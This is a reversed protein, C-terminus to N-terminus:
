KNQYLVLEAVVPCHDSATLDNVVYFKKLKFRGKPFTCIYDIQCQSKLSTIPRPDTDNWIDGYEALYKLAATDRTCNLDGGLIAPYFNNKDLYNKITKVSEMRVKDDGPCEGRYSLHTVVLYCVPDGPLRYVAFCRPEINGPVPLFVKEIFETPKRSLMGVGYEWRDPRIKAPAFHCYMGAAKGLELPLDLEPTDRHFRAVEQLAAVDPKEARIIGAQGRFDPVKDSRIGSHINYTMVKINRGSSCGTMICVAMTPIILHKLKMFVYNGKM